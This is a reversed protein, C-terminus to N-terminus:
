TIFIDIIIEPSIKEFLISWHDNSNEIIRILENFPLSKPKTKDPYFDRQGSLRSIGTQLLHSVIHKVSWEPYCTPSHWDKRDMNKLLSIMKDTIEKFLHRTDIIGLNDM